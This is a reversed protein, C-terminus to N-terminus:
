LDGDERFPIAASKGYVESTSAVIVKKRKKAAAKLVAETGGVNNTITSVPSEIINLVGVTAALHVIIDAVDVLESLVNQTTVSEPVFEIRPNSRLHAVNRVSGSSLNDLIVVRQELKLLAEALHSGIFGAGGTILFTSM